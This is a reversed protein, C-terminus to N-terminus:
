VFLRKQAGERVVRLQEQKTKDEGQRKWGM